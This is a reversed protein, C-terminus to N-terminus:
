SALSRKTKSDEEWGVVQITVPRGAYIEPNYKARITKDRECTVSPLASGAADNLLSVHDALDVNPDVFGMSLTCAPYDLVNAIATYAFYRVKSYDAHRPAVAPNVPSIYANIGAVNWQQLMAARFDLVEMALDRDELLSIAPGDRECAATMPPEGSLACKRRIDGAADSRFVRLILEVVRITDVKWPVVEHGASTLAAITKKHREPHAASSLM